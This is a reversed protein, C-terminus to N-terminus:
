RIFGYQVSRAMVAVSGLRGELRGEPERDWQGAEMLAVPSKM